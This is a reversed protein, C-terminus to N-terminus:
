SLMSMAAKLSRQLRNFAQSIQSIEDQGHVEIEDVEAQGQSILEAQNAMKKLPKIVLVHMVLNLVIMALIFLLALMLIFRKLEVQIAHSQEALNIRVTKAGNVQSNEIIPKAYVFFPGQADSLRETVVPLNRDTQFQKIINQQWINAQYRPIGADNIAVKYNFKPLHLQSDRFVQSAAYSGVSQPLFGADLQQLLPQVEQQNYSRVSEAVQYILEAQQQTQLDAKLLLQQRHLVFIVVWSILLVSCLVLNFKLRLGM